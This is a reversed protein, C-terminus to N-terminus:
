KTVNEFAAQHISVTSLLFNGFRWAFANMLDERERETKWWGGFSWTMFDCALQQYVAFGLIAVGDMFHSVAM